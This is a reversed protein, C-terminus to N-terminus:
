EVGEKCDRCKGNIIQSGCCNSLKVEERFWKYYEMQEKGAHIILIPLGLKFRTWNMYMRGTRGNGDIWPHIKEFEVHQAKIVGELFTKTEKKGNDVLDMVNSIWHDIADKIKDFRIGERGGIYIPVTRFYGRENPKLCSPIMLIKHTELIVKPTLKDQEILYDWAHRAQDLSDQDRVGEIANSERLFEMVDEIKYEKDKIKKIMFRKIGSKEKRTAVKV